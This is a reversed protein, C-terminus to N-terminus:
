KDVGDLDALRKQERELQRKLDSPSKHKGGNKIYDNRRKVLASKREALERFIKRKFDKDTQLKPLDEDKILGYSLAERIVETQNYEKRTIKFCKKCLDLNEDEWRTGDPLVGKAVALFDHTPKNCRKCIFKRITNRDM